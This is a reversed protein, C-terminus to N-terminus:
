FVYIKKFLNIPHLHKRMWLLCRGECVLFLALMKSSLTRGYEPVDHVKIKQFINLSLYIQIEQFHRHRLELKLACSFNWLPVGIWLGLAFLSPLLFGLCQGMGVSCLRDSVCHLGGWGYLSGEGKGSCNLTSNSSWSQFSPNWPGWCGLCEEITVM